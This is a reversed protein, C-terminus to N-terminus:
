RAASSHLLTLYSVRWRYCLQEDTLKSLDIQPRFRLASTRLCVRAGVDGRVQVTSCCGALSWLGARRVALQGLGLRRARLCGPSSAISASSPAPREEASRAGCAFLRMRGGSSREWYETVFGLTLLMGLAGFCIFLFTVAVPSMTVAVSAGVTALPVCLVLWLKRYTKM